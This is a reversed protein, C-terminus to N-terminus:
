VVNLRSYIDMFTICYIDGSKWHSHTYLLNVSCRKVVVERPTSHVSVSIAKTSVILVNLSNCAQTNKQCMDTLM